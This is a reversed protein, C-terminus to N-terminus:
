ERPRGLQERFESPTVGVEKKFFRCFYSVEEFRMEDAIQSVTKGTESLERKARETKKRNIYSVVTEGTTERFTRCLNSRNTRFLFALESLTIKELYNDRLYQIIEGIEFEVPAKNKRTELFDHRRILNILFVELLSRLVQESGFPQVKKKVMNQMPVNYPPAFVNRGEKVIEALQKVETESLEIPKSAFDRLKESKCVFGIIILSTAAHSSCSFAHETDAPHLIMHNKQLSGSYDESEVTLKGAGVFVLECFPHQDMQTRYGKPFEFFHVNAIKSVQLVSNLTKLNFKMVRNYNLM